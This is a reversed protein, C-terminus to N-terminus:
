PLPMRQTIHLGFNIGIVLRTAASPVFYLTYRLNNGSPASLRLHIRKPHLACVCRDPGIPILAASDPRQKPLARTMIGIELPAMPSSQRVVDPAPRPAPMNDAHARGAYAGTGAGRVRRSEQGHFAAYMM